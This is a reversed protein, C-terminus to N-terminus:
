GEVQLNTSKVTMCPCKELNFVSAINEAGVTDNRKDSTLDYALLYVINKKFCFLQYAVTILFNYKGTNM